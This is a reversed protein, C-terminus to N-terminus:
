QNEQISQGSFDELVEQDGVEEPAVLRGFGAYTFNDALNYVSWLVLASDKLLERDRFRFLFARFRKAHLDPGQEAHAGELGGVAVRGEPAVATVVGHGHDRHLRSLQQTM